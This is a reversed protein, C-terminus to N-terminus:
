RHSSPAARMSARAAIVVGVHEPGLHRRTGPEIGAAVLRAAAIGAADLLQSFTLRSHEDVLAPTPSSRRPASSL